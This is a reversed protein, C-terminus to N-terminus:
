DAGRIWGAGTADRELYTGPALDPLDALEPFRGVLHGFGIVRAQSFDCGCGAALAGDDKDRALSVATGLDAFVHACVFVSLNDPLDGLVM